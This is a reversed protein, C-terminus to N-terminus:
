GGQAQACKEIIFRIPNREGEKVHTMYPDGPVVSTRDYFLIALEELIAVGDKNQQFFRHYISPDVELSNQKTKVQKNDSM